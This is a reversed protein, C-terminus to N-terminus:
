ITFTTQSHIGGPKQLWGSIILLQESRNTLTNPSRPCCAMVGTPTADRGYGPNGPPPGPPLAGLFHVCLGGLRRPTQLVPPAPSGQLREPSVHPLRRGSPGERPPFRRVPSPDSQLCFSNVLLLRFAM